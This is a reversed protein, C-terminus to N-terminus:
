HGSVPHLARSIIRLAAEANESPVPLWDGAGPDDRAAAQLVAVSADSADGQRDAVRAELTALPAHLWFGHFPVGSASAVAALRARYSPDLFTADAIVTHGAGTATATAALIADFVALNAEPGYADKPLSQEPVVGFQRKRIEDSRLVVAGPAVGLGPALARALTSKGTGPLGGIAIVSPARPVLYDLAAALYDRATDGQGSRAQVHARVMARMSLFVPLGRLLDVDGSRAIMRNMVRNASARNLRRDLDMLLFAADYGIDITALAEDFELADFLVPRGQWLCLNGLHLDGHARRVFGAKARGAAWPELGDIQGLIAAQWTSVQPEPLGAELAARANGRAVERMPPIVGDAAPLAAHYTFVADALADLLGPQLAGDAAMVDLFDHAPVRAMRLVWDVAAEPEGDLVLNGDSAEAIPVVDRYLGPAGRNNLELERKLFRLRDEVKTFDLFALRVAKKLKWVTDSGVFVLSIHTEIPQSGSTQQLFEAVARQSEPVSM